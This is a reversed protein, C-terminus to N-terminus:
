WDKIKLLKYCHYEPDQVDKCFNRYPYVLDKDGMGLATSVM